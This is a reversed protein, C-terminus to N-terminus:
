LRGKLQCLPLIISALFPIWLFLIQSYFVSAHCKFVKSYFLIHLCIVYTTMCLNVTKDIRYVHKNLKQANSIEWLNLLWVTTMTPNITPQKFDCRTSEVRLGTKHLFVDIVLSVMIKWFLRRFTYVNTHALKKSYSITCM